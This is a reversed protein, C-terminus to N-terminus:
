EKAATKARQQRTAIEAKLQEMMRALEPSPQRQYKAELEALASELSRRRNIAKEIGDVMGIAIPSPSTRSPPHDRAAVRETLKGFSDALALLRGRSEPYRTQFAPSQLMATENRYEGVRSSQAADFM